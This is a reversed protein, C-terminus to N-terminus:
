SLDCEKRSQSGPIYFVGDPCITYCMGCAMCAEDNVQVPHYGNANLMGSKSIAQRPCHYICLGCEKCCEQKVNVKM